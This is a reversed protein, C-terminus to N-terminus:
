GLRRKEEPKAGSELWSMSQETPEAPNVWVISRLEGVARAAEAFLNRAEEDLSIVTQDTAMAAEILCFDKLMAERDKQNTATRMVKDLLENDTVDHVLDLKKRAVMGVRWRRAFNSQHKNWELTIDSTMVVGHCIGMVALLFDRCRKSVPHTAGKGGCARAISANIVLRRLVKPSV